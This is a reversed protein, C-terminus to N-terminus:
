NVIFFWLIIISAVIWAALHVVMVLSRPVIMKGVKLELVVASSQFWTITHLLAFLLAVLHFIVWGPSSFRQMFAAYSEQGSGSQYIQVLFVVLFSAIFVSSLERMMFLFYHCQRLWWTAPMKPYYLKSADPRINTM